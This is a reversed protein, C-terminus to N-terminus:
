AVSVFITFEAVDSMDLKIADDLDIAAKYLPNYVSANSLVNYIINYM